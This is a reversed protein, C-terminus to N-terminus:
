RATLNGSAQISGCRHLRPSSNASMTGSLSAGDKCQTQGLHGARQPISQRGTTPKEGDRSKMDLSTRRVPLPPRPLQRRSSAADKESSINPLRKTNNSPAPCQITNSNQCKAAASRKSTETQGKLVDKVAGSMTQDRLSSTSKSFSSSAGTRSMSSRLRPPKHSQHNRVSCTTDHVVTDTSSRNNLPPNLLNPNIRERGRCGDDFSSTLRRLRRGSM